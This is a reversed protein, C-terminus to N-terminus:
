ADADFKRIMRNNRDVAMPISIRLAITFNQYFVILVAFIYLFEDVTTTDTRQTSTSIPIMRGRKTILVSFIDIISGNM